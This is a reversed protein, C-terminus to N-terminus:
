RAPRDGNGYRTSRPARNRCSSASEKGNLSSSASSDGSGPRSRRCKVQRATRQAQRLWRHEALRACAEWGASRKM